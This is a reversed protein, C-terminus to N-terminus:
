YRVDIAKRDKLMNVSHHAKFSTQSTPMELTLM